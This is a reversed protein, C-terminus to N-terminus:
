PHRALRRGTATRHPHVRIWERASERAAEDVANRFASQVFLAGGGPGEPSPQASAPHAVGALCIVLLAMTVRTVLNSRRRRFSPEASM